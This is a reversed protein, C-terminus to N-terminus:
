GTINKISRRVADLTAQVDRELERLLEETYRAAQLRQDGAEARAENRIRTAEENARQTIEDQEIMKMARERAEEVIQNARDEAKNVTDQSHRTAEEIASNARADAAQVKADAEAQADRLIRDRNDVIQQSYRVADPLCARINELIDLCMDVNVMRKNTLPVASGETLAKALFDLLQDLESGEEIVGEDEDYGEGEYEENEFPEQPEEQQNEKEDYFVDDSM